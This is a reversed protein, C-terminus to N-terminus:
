DRSRVVMWAGTLVAWLLVPTWALLGAVWPPLIPVTGVRAFTGHVLLAVMAIGGLGAGLCAARVRWAPSRRASMLSWAAAGVVAAAASPLGFVVFALEPYTEPAGGTWEWALPTFAFVAATALALVATVVFSARLAAAIM